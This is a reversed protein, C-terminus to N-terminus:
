FYRLKRGGMSAGFNNSITAKITNAAEAYYVQMEADRGTLWWALLRYKFYTFITVTIIDEFTDDAGKLVWMLREDSDSFSEINDRFALSFKVLETNLASRFESYVDKSIVYDEFVADAAEPQRMRLAKFDVANQAAVEDFLHQITFAIRM